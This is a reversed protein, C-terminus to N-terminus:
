FSKNLRALLKKHKGPAKPHLCSNMSDVIGMLWQKYSAPRRGKRTTSPLRVVEQGNYFPLSRVMKAASHKADRHRLLSTTTNFTSPCHDCHTKYVAM